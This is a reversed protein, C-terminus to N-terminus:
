IRNQAGIPSKIHALIERKSHASFIVVLKWNFLKLCLFDNTLERLLRGKLIETGIPM